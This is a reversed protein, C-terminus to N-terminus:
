GMQRSSEHGGMAFSSSEQRKGDMGKRVERSMSNFGGADGPWCLGLGRFSRQAKIGGTTRVLVIRRHNRVEQENVGRLM